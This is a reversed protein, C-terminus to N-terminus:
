VARIQSVAGPHPPRGGQARHCGRRQTGRAPDRRPRRRRPRPRAPQTGRRDRVPDRGRPHLGGDDGPPRSGGQGPHDRGPRFLCRGLRRVPDRVVTAHADAGDTPEVGGAGADGAEVPDVPDPTAALTAYPDPTTAAALELRARRRRRRRRILWLVVLALLLVVVAIAIGAMTARQRGIEAAGALVDLTAKAGASAGTADGNAFARRAAEYGTDPQTGLLGLGVLPTREAGLADRASRISAVASEWGRMRTDLATLDVDSAAAEYSPELVTPLALDLGAAATTLADRDDLVTAAIAMSSDATKFRWDSMSKRIVIGPSWTGGQELLAAYRVRATARATLEPRESSSVAWTGILGAATKSHGLEEVLDLFRRWDPTFPVTEAPGAGLYAITRDAAARFVDRMRPEGVDTVIARIVTWSADYGFDEAAQTDDDIRSPPPWADLAFAAPSDPRVPAPDDLKTGDEAAVIRSAYEDALGERIWRETFLTGDFWAHSAEHVILHADLDENISIEDTASDYFGGYGELQSTSAENIQLERTVPWPLGIETQLDPLGERLVSTVRTLWEPDEPWSHIRIDKGFITLPTDVLAADDNAEVTAYWTSPEHLAKADFHEQGGVTTSFVADTTGLPIAQVDGTFDPPLVIHVEGLGPDGWAWATFDAHARGVRVASASRPKGSRLDFTLRAKRTQHYYINPTKVTVVQFGDHTKSTLNLRSGSSTAAFSRADAQVAFTLTNYFFIRTATNPELSTATIDLTVHVVSKAPDVRYTTSVAEKLRDSAARAPAVAVTGTLASAAIAAFLVLASARRAM